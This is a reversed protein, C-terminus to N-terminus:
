VSTGVRLFASTEVSPPVLLKDKKEDMKGASPFDMPSAMKWASEDAMQEVRQFVKREGSQDAM